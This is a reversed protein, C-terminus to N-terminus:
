ARRPGGINDYDPIFIYENVGFHISSEVVFLIATLAISKLDM